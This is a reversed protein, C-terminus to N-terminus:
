SPFPTAVGMAPGVIPLPLEVELCAGGDPSGDQLRVAGRHEECISRIAALGVGRGSSLSVKDATSIGDLFLVQVMDEKRLSTIGRAKAMTQVQSWNIGQGKDLVQLHLRGRTEWANLTFHVVASQQFAPRSQVYGHDISNAIAHVLIERIVDGTAEDLSGLADNIQKSVRDSNSQFRKLENTAKDIGSTFRAVNAAM